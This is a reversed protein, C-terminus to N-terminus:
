ARDFPFSLVEAISQAGTKLTVLRDIGLACGCCPPLGATMASVLRSTSKLASKGDFVRRRNNAENRSLLENADLLEHYGNALELGRYFIEYREAVSFEDERIKALAAQTSPWDYVILPKTQGINPEVFEVFIWELWADRQDVHFEPPSRDSTLAFQKLQENTAVFPDVAAHQLFVDRYSIQEARECYLAETVLSGLFTRADAYSQGVDYWELMTFEPNHFQGIEGARFVRSIQFIKKAGGCLLRKMGFEPSTQLWMTHSDTLKGTQPNIKVPIPDLHQDVVVDSSLVPTEVELFDNSEFFTRVSKILQARDKLLDLSATPLYDPNM